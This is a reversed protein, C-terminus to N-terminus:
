VRGYRYRLNRYDIDRIQKVGFDLVECYNIEEDTLGSCIFLYIMM